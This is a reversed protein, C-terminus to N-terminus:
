ENLEHLDDVMRLTIVPQNRYELREIAHGEVEVLSTRTM